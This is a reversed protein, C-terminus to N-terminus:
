EEKRECRLALLIGGARKKGGRGVAVHCHFFKVPQQRASAVTNKAGEVEISCRCRWRCRMDGLAAGRQDLSRTPRRRRSRPKECGGGYTPKKRKGHGGTNYETKRVFISPLHVTPGHGVFGM